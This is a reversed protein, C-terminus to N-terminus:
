PAMSAVIIEGEHDLGSAAYQAFRWFWNTGHDDDFGAALTMQPCLPQGNKIEHVDCNNEDEIGSIAPSLLGQIWNVASLCKPTERLSIPPPHGSYVNRRKHPSMEGLERFSSLAGIVTM